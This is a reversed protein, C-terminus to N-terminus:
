KADSFVVLLKCISDRSMMYTCAGRSGHGELEDQGVATARQMVVGLKETMMRNVWRKEGFM